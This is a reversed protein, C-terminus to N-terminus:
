ARATEARRAIEAIMGSFIAGHIPYLAYWYILGLLGRPVFYATQTLITTHANEPQAQFELWGLGPLRMEARLRVLRGPEVQEVRWFDVADGVFLEDPHRRGRRMGVGGMLRDFRGRLKWLLNAYLWGRAGGMGAVVRYVTDAAARVRRQRREFFIGEEGTFTVPRVDGKSAALADSWSTEVQANQLRQLALDLATAYDLPKIAPFLQRASDDRVIVENRLGEILPTAINSSIPTVWHLWYASLRPSLVPVPILWRRLGRARAYGLMMSGYTQVDAGGIEITRGASDPARLAEILYSLVDRIAIPQIRTSIWRPCIMMPVRETLHRIIEFSVSGSGIIIAARFETVPVEARRLVDGTMQRSRLHRSLNTRSDGLGGLYIIRQVGADHAAFAFNHAAILDRTDFDAMQSMSHVLYYATQVDRMAAPLTDPQIVDGVVVEVQALWPRWQLRLADRVLVRVRYGAELLRPVLRGGVYGTVGTVLILESM